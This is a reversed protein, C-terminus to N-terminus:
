PLLTRVVKYFRKDRGIANTDTHSMTMDGGSWVRSTGLDHWDQTQLTESYQVQYSYGAECTWAITFGNEIDGSLDLIRYAQEELDTVSITFQKEYWLGVQDTTRVRISYSSKAEYNLSTTVRLNSGSINFTANDTSGAGSVLTYTFTDGVEVDTTSLTGVTSGVAVNENISSATLAIDTPTHVPVSGGGGTPSGPITISGNVDTNVVIEQISIYDITNASVVPGTLIKVYGTYYSSGDNSYIFGLYYITNPQNLTIDNRNLNWWFRGWHWTNPASFSFSSGPLLGTLYDMNNVLVGNQGNWLSQLLDIPTPNSIRSVDYSALLFQNTSGYFVFGKPQIAQNLYDGTVLGTNVDISFSYYNNTYIAIGQAFFVNQFNNTVLTAKAGVSLFLLAVLPLLLKKM